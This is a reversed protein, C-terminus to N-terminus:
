SITLRKIGAQIIQDMGPASPLKSINELVRKNLAKNKEEDILDGKKKDLGDNFEKLAVTAVAMGWLSRSNKSNAVLSQAYYRRANLINEYKGGYTYLTEALALHGLYSHPNSLVVEELCFIAYQIKGAEIYLKALEKWGETDAQYIELYKVLDKIALDLKGTSILLSIKRKLAIANLENVELLGDYVENAKKTEGLCEYLLGQLRDVRQSSPFQIKLENLMKECTNVDHIDLAALFVQEKISWQETGLFTSKLQATGLAVIEKPNERSQTKRAEALKEDTM